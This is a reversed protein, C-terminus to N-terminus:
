SRNFLTMTKQIGHELWHEIAQCSREVAQELIAKEDPGPRSLVYDAGEMLGAPGIGIRCRCFRDTGLCTIIDELGHHGGASGGARIRIRGPELDMDDLVVMLREPAIGFHQVAPGVATGSRNMYTMPKLLVVAKGSVDAKAMRAHFQRKDLKVHWNSALADVVAFGMNHRTGLYEKGPNGLGVVM